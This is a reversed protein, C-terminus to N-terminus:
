FVHPPDPTRVGHNRQPTFNPNALEWQQHKFDFVVWALPQKLRCGNIGRCAPRISCFEADWSGAFSLSTNDLLERLHRRAIGEGSMGGRVAQVTQGTKM